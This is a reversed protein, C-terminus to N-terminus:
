GDGPPVGGSGRVSVSVLLPCGAAKVVATLVVPAGHNETVGDLPVVGAVRVTVAFM